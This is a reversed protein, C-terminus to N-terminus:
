HVGDDQEISREGAPGQPNRPIQKQMPVTGLHIVSDGLVECAQGTKSPSQFCKDVEAAALGQCPGYSGGGSSGLDDGFLM